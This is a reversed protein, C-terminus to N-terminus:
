DGQEEHYIVFDSWPGQEEVPVDRITWLDDKRMFAIEEGEDNRLWTYTLQVFRFPGLPKSTKGEREFRVYIM